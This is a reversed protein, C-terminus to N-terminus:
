ITVDADRLYLPHAACAKKRAKLVIQAAALALIPPENIAQCGIESALKKAGSGCATFPLYKELQKATYIKPSNKAEGNAKFDQVCYDNRKSDLVVKHPQTLQHFFSTATFNDVGLVPIKLALGLGRATALGIRVGTFSGPGVTVAIHTLDQPTRYLQKLIRQIFVMLLEGQDHPAKKWILMSGKEQDLCAVCVADSTTDIGLCLTKKKLM